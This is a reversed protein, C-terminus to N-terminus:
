QAGRLDDTEKEKPRATTQINMTSPRTDKCPCREEHIALGGVAHFLYRCYRCARYAIRNIVITKTSPLRTDKKM